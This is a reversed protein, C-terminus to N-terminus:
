RASSTPRRTADPNLERALAAIGAVIPAAM